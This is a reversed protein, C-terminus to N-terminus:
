AAEKLAEGFMYLQTDASGYADTLSKRKLGFACRDCWKQLADDEFYWIIASVALLFISVELSAFVLAARALLLRKATWSLAQGALREGFKKGFTEILPSCYSLSTLATLASSTGQFISRIGYLTAMRYDGTEAANGRDRWDLAAGYGSAVVSLAGGGLKLAQYGVARDGAQALGKIMNSLVDIAAAATALKAATLQAQAKESGPEKAAKASAKYLNFAEFVAVVLALRADRAANFNQRKADPVEINARLAAWKKAHEEYQAKAAASLYYDQNKLRRLLMEREAAGNVADWAGLAKAALPDVGSRVMLLARLTVENVTDITWKFPRVWQGGVTAFIKDLGRMSGVPQIGSAADNAAKMQTNYSTLSKKALDSVKNWKIQSGIKEWAQATLPTPAGYAVQLAADVEAMGEHQNLAIARWILNTKVSAKAQRVWDDIKAAGSRCSGMGFIADGVADEFQVGDADCAPHFDELTDIFLPAELWKILAVTRRDILADAQTQLQAWHGNFKDLDGQNLREQYRAWTRAMDGQKNTSLNTTRAGALDRRHQDIKAYEAEMAAPNSSHQAIVQTRQGKYAPEGIQRARFKDDLEYLPRGLLAPEGKAYRLVAQMRINNEQVDPLGATRTAVADWGETIQKALVLKLGTISNAAIIQLRREQGYRGLWGAADNRFGNLEHTIGIADWLALLHPTNQGGDAKKARLQMARLAQEAEGQRLHWPYRTSMKGLRAPDFRGDEKSITDAPTDYPLDLPPSFGPAYEIVQELAAASATTGHSHKAGTAMEAPHITQMRANRLKSNTAYENITQESWKHASFAIWTPGCKDPREIVLAHLRINSQGHSACQLTVTPQPAAMLPNPQKVLVGDATVMYCEWKNSGWQNKSYFLYVYGARLTRLAYRFDSGLAVDTVRQGSAWAPLAPSMAAPVVAYRVPMIPLGIAQCDDCLTTM